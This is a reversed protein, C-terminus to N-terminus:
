KKQKESKIQKVIGYGHSVGKGLGIYNPLFVNTKFKLSFGLLKQDKFVVTQPDKYETIVIDIPKDVTWNIGKAMTLINAKLINELFKIRDSLSEIQSFKKYNNQNLAIWKIIKFDFYTNWVQMNFKNLFLKEVKLELKKDGIFISWDPKQFFHHIEDVGEEICVIAAKKNITKYQILPYRYLYGDELHNHFYICEKGAKEAIAARFAPIEYGKIESDFIVTVVKVKKLTKEM